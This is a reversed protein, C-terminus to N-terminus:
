LPPADAEESVVLPMAAVKRGNIILEISYEGPVEVELAIQCPAQVVIERDRPGSPSWQPVPVGLNVVVIEPASPGSVSVDVTLEEADTPSVVVEAFVGFYVTGPLVEAQVSPGLAKGLVTNGDEDQSPWDATATFTRVRM